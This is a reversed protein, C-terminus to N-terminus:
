ATSRARGPKAPTRAKLAKLLSGAAAFAPTASFFFDANVQVVVAFLYAFRDPPLAGIAAVEAGTAVAVLEILRDPERSLLNFLDGVDEVTPGEESRLRGLLEDDLLLLQKVMPAATTLLRAIQQVSAPRVTLQLTGLDLPVEAPVAFNPTADVATM